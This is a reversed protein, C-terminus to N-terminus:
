GKVVKSIVDCVKIVDEDTMYPHMPLSLVTNCLTDSVIFDNENVVQYKFAEQNHMPKVYYIMSPIGAEKLKAQLLDRMAKNELRITYQAFSSRYGEPILPTEVLGNLAAQYVQYVRNVDDLEHTIFATLKVNLIAAQITDLRSNVGVRVNDYKSEGKGHVRYSALLDALADENTFIAGGDGYCGLPKAPFFSTTAVDGFSCAMQGNISGGFGQAADELIRLDYKKAIAGIATYNAPLGFLDVPIIVRPKLKGAELTDIIADELKIPDMNFTRPDVDVFVPTAGRFSVIEGTSFFTFDPVFVADGEKIDWALMVLTMAETGNACSICHKVGVYKALREELLQVSKGSIFDTNILVEQIASDIEKKYKQYQAKLDRFEMGDCGM